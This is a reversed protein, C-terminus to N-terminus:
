GNKAWEVLEHRIRNHREKSENPQQGEGQHPLLIGYSRFLVYAQYFLGADRSFLHSNLRRYLVWDEAM